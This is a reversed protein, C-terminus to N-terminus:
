QLTGRDLLERLLAEDEPRLGDVLGQLAAARDASHELLRRVQDAVVTSQEVAPKYAFARGARTREVLGKEHLRTLITTVTTYALGGGLAGQVATPVLPEPSAWLAALM